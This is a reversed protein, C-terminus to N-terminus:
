LQTEILQYLAYDNKAGLRNVLHFWRAVHASAVHHDVAAQDAFNEYWVFRTPDDIRRHLKFELCGPESRTAEIFWKAASIFEDETGRPCEMHAVITIM